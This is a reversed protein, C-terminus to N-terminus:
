NQQKRKRRERKSCYMAIKYVKSINNISEGLKCRLDKNQSSKNCSVSPIYNLPRRTVGEDTDSKGSIM